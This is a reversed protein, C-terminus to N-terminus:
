EFVRELKFEIMREGSRFNLRRAIIMGKLGTETETISDGLPWSKGVELPIEVLWREWVEQVEDRYYTRLIGLVTTTDYPDDPNDTLATKIQLSPEELRLDDYSRGRGKRNVWSLSVAHNNQPQGRDFLNYYGDPTVYLVGNCLQCLDCLIDEATVEGDYSVEISFTFRTDNTYLNFGRDWYSYVGREDLYGVPYLRGNQPKEFTTLLSWDPSDAIGETYGGGSILIWHWPANSLPSDEVWLILGRNATFISLAPEISSGGFVYFPSSLTYNSMSAGSPAYRKLLINHTGAIPSATYYSDFDAWVYESFPRVTGDAKILCKFWGNENTDGDYEIADTAGDINLVCVESHWGLNAYFRFWIAIYNEGLIARCFHADFNSVEARLGLVNRVNMDVVFDKFIIRNTRTYVKSIKFSIEGGSEIFPAELLWWTESRGDWWVDYGTGMSINAGALTLGVMDTRYGEFPPYQPLADTIYGELKHLIDDINGRATFGDIVCDAFRKQWSYCHINVVKNEDDFELDNLSRVYGQYIKESNWYVEVTIGYFTGHTKYKNTFYDFYGDYNNVKSITIDNSCFAFRGQEIVEELSELSDLAIRPTIWEIREHTSPMLGHPTMETIKVAIGM